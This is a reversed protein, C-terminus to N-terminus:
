QNSEPRRGFSTSGAKPSLVFGYHFPPLDIQPGCMLGAAEAWRTYDGPQPRIDMPPGRPTAPDYNWHIVGVKGDPKVNRSAERLLEVPEETHLINFLMAYDAAGDALGSGSSIFDRVIFEINTLGLAAARATATRLISPEIDLAFVTGAAISAAAITFTGYGCGFEVVNRQARTLGLKALIAPPDFYSEWHAQEPMGSERVKM